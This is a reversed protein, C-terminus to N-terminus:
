LITAVHKINLVVTTLHVLRHSIHRSYIHHCTHHIQQLACNHSVGHQHTVRTIGEEVLSTDGRDVEARPEAKHEPFDARANGVYMAEHGHLITLHFYRWFMENM